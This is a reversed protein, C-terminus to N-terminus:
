AVILARAILLRMETFDEPSSSDPSLARAKQRLIESLPHTPHRMAFGFAQRALEVAPDPVSPTNSM